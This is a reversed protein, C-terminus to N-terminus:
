PRRRALLSHAEQIQKRDEDSQRAAERLTRQAKELRETSGKIADDSNALTRHLTRNIHSFM